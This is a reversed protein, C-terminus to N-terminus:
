KLVKIYFTQVIYTDRTDIATNSGTGTVVGDLYIPPISLSPINHEHNGTNTETIWPDGLIGDGVNSNTGGLAPLATNKLQLFSGGDNVGVNHNHTGGGTTIGTETSSAITSGTVTLAPLNNTGIVVSDLVGSSIAMPFTTGNQGRLVRGTYNPLNFTTAASGYPYLAGSYLADLDPYSAKLLSAGNVELWKAGYAGASFVSSTLITGVPM